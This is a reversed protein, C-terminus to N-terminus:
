NIRLRQNIMWQVVEPIMDITVDDAINEDNIVIDELSNASDDDVVSEGKGIYEEYEHYDGYEEIDSDDYADLYTHYLTDGSDDSSTDM